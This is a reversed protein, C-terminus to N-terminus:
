ARRATPPKRGRGGRVVRLSAPRPRDTARDATAGPLASQRLSEACFDATRQFHRSLLATASDADRALVAQVIAGHENTLARKVKLSWRRYLESADFLSRCLEILQPSDCAEILTAHFVAHAATWATSMNDSGPPDRSPTRALLHEAALVRAEWAIDGREISRRLALTEVHIRLMTLDRLRDVSVSIVAFSQQPRREVLRQEVLRTLAERVVSLSVGYQQRLGSAKLRTGPLIRGALIDDRIRRHILEQLTRARQPQM